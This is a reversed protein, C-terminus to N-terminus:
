RSLRLRRWQEHPALIGLVAGISAGYTAGVGAARWDTPYHPGGRRRPDNLLAWTIAGGMAGGVAREIASAVRSQGRSIELRRISSRPVALLGATAPVLLRLTDGAVAGVTGRLVQRRSPGDLQRVPEPLWVRIRAGPQVAAPFQAAAAVPVALCLAAVLALRTLPATM